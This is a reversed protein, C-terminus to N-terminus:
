RHRDTNNPKEASELARAVPCASQPPPSSDPPKPRRQAKVSYPELALYLTSIAVKLTQAVTKRTAGDIIMRRALAIQTETLARPRGLKRSRQRATALGARTRESHLTRQAALLATLIKQLSAPDIDVIEQLSACDIGEPAIKLPSDPPERDTVM